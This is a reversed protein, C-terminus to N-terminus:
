PPLTWLGKCIEQVTELLISILVLFRLLQTGFDLENALARMFSQFTSTPITTVRYIPNRCM